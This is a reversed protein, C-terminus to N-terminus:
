LRHKRKRFVSIARACQRTFVFSVQLAIVSLLLAEISAVTWAVNTIEFVAAPWAVRGVFFFVHVAHVLWPVVGVFVFYALCLIWIAFPAANDTLSFDSVLATGLTYLTYRRPCGMTEGGLVSTFSILELVSGAVLLATSALLLVTLAIRAPGPHAWVLDVSPSPSAFRLGQLVQAPTRNGLSQSPEPMTEEGHGQDVPMEGQDNQQQYWVKGHQHLLWELHAFNWLTAALFAVIAGRPEGRIIVPVDGNAVVIPLAVGVLIVAIVQKYM